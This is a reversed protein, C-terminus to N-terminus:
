AHPVDRGMMRMLAAAEREFDSRLWGDEGFLRGHLPADEPLRAALMREVMVTEPLALFAAVLPAHDRPPQHGGEILSVFSARCGLAAAVDHQRLGRQERRWALIEGYLPLAAAIGRLRRAPPVPPTIGLQQRAAAVDARYSKGQLAKRIVEPMVGFGHAVSAVDEGALECRRVIAVVDARSLLATKRSGRGALRMDRGNDTHTGIALHAPRICRRNHCLHRLLLGAPIPGHRAEWGLRAARKGGHMAYGNQERKGTWNWCGAAPDVTYHEGERFPFDTM